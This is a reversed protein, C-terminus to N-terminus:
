FNHLIFDVCAFCLISLLHMRQFSLCHKRHNEAGATLQEGTISEPFSLLMHNGRELSWFGIDVQQKVKLDKQTRTEAYVKKGPAEEVIPGVVNQEKRKPTRLYRLTDLITPVMKCILYAFLCTSVLRDMRKAGGLLLGQSLSKLVSLM